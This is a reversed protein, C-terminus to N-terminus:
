NRQPLVPESMVVAAKQLEDKQLEDKVSQKKAEDEWGTGQEAGLSERQAVLM